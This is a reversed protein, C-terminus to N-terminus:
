KDICFFHRGSIKKGTIKKAIASLTPFKMGNYEFGDNLIVVSHQIQHYERIIRTGVPPLSNRAEPPVCMQAILKQQERPLGGYALEQIRYAIRSVYFEKNQSAAPETFYDAWMRQLESLSRSQLSAIQITIPQMRSGWM